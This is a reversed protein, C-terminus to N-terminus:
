ALKVSAIDASGLRHLDSGSDVDVGHQDYSLVIGQVVVGDFTRVEIYQHESRSTSFLADFENMGNRKGRQTVNLTRGGHIRGSVGTTGAEMSTVPRICM